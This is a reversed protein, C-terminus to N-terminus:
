ALPPPDTIRLNPEDGALATRIWALVTEPAAQPTRDTTDILKLHWQPALDPIRDWRM